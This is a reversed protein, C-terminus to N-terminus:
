LKKHFILFLGAIFLCLGSVVALIEEFNSLTKNKDINIPCGLEITWPLRYLIEKPPRDSM